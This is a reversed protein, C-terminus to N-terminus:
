QEDERQCICFSRSLKCGPRRPEPLPANIQGVTQKRVSDRVAKWVGQIGLYKYDVSRDYAALNRVADREHEFAYIIGTEQRALEIAEEFGDEFHPKPKTQHAAVSAGCIRCTYVDASYLNYPKPPDGYTEVLGVGISSKDM